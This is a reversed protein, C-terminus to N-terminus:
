EDMAVLPVRQTSYYIGYGTKVSTYGNDNMFKFARDMQREYDTANSSTEHHMM